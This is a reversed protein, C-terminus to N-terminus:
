ESAEEVVTHGLEKLIQAYIFEASYSNGDYCHALPSFDGFQTGDITVKAGEAWSAGCTECDYVDTLWKIKIKSM